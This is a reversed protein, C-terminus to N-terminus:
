AYSSVLRGSRLNQSRSTKNMISALKETGIYINIPQETQDNSGQNGSMQLAMNALIEELDTLGGVNQPMSENVAKPARVSNRYPDASVNIIGNAVIASEKTQESVYSMADTVTDTNGIIGKAIGATIQIGVENEFVKSPSEIQLDAKMTDIADSSLGNIASKITEAGDEIGSAIGNSINQGIPSWDKESFASEISNIINTLATSLGDKSKDNSAASVGGAIGKIISTGVSKWDVKTFSNKIGSVTSTISSALDSGTDQIADSTDSATQAMKDNTDKFQDSAEKTTSSINSYSSTVSDKANEASEILGNSFDKDKAKKDYAFIGNVGEVMKKTVGALSASVANMSEKIMNASAQKVKPTSQKVGEATGEGVKNGVKKGYEKANETASKTDKKKTDAETMPIIPNGSTDPAGGNEDDPVIWAQGMMESTASRVTEKAGAIGEATSTAMTEGIRTMEEAITKANDEIGKDIDNIFEQGIRVAENEFDASSEIQSALHNVAEVASMGNETIGQQIGAPIMAGIRNKFVQSPSAIELKQEAVTVMNEGLTAVNQYLQDANEMLGENIGIAIYRGMNRFSEMKNEFVAPIGQAISNISTALKQILTEDSVGDIIGNTIYKGLRSWDISEFLTTIKGIHTSTSQYVENFGEDFAQTISDMATSISKNIDVMKKDVSDSIANFNSETIQAMQDTNYSLDSYSVDSNESVASAVGSMGGEASSKISDFSDATDGINKAMDSLVPEIIGNSYDIDGTLETLAGSIGDISTAAGDTHEVIGDFANGANITHEEVGDLDSNTQSIIARIKDSSSMAGEVASKTSNSVSDMQFGFLNAFSITDEGMGSLSEGYSQKSSDWNLALNAIRGGLADFSEGSNDATEKAKDAIGKLWSGANQAATKVSTGFANVKDVLTDFAADQDSSLSSVGNVFGEVVYTGIDYMVKSPSNIGFLTKWGDVFPDTVNEQIWGVPKGLTNKIPAIFGDAVAQGITSFINEGGDLGLLSKFGNVFPDVVNTKIWEVPESFFNLIPETFGSILDSGITMFSNDEGDLGFLDIVGNVFPDVINTKAWNYVDKFFNLIPSTFGSILDSAISTFSNDEGDLGFLNKIGNLFPDSINTKVWGHVKGFFKKIPTTFGTVLKSAISFFSNEDGNIGFLNKVGTIFPNVINTKIWGAANSFFKIFPSAFGQILNSAVVFLSQQETGIGFLSKFANVFPDIINTKIWNGIGGFFNLFPNIFGQVGYNGIEAMVTSPSAIGFLAKFGEVFPDVIHTKLWNGIGGFFNLFPQVFGNVIDSGIQSLVGEGEGIGFLSKFGNIFPDSINTKIWDGINAFTDIFPKLFSDYISNGVGSITDIIVGVGSQIGSGLDRFYNIVPSIYDNYISNGLEVFYAGLENAGTRISNVREGIGDALNGFYDIVPKVYSDYIAKGSEIFSSGLETAGAKVSNVRTGIGDALNGFYDTVPKIYSDYIAKGSEIFSSGLENAGSKVSNVRERIGSALNGFYDTVPKIYSNYIATGSAIFSAGLENAGAKVTDVKEKIGDALDGFYDVVPKIYSDYISTGFEKFTDKISNAKEGLEGFKENIATKASDFFTSVNTRINKAEKVIDGPIGKFFNVIKKAGENIKGPIGVFFAVINNWMTSVSDYIGKGFDVISNWIGIFFDAIGKGVGKVSDWKDEILGAIGGALGGVATGILAGAPGGIIGGIFGGIKAGLGAGFIPGLDTEIIGNAIEGLVGFFGKFIGAWDISKLAEGVDHWPVASIASKLVGLIQIAFNSIDGAFTELDINKFASSIATAVNNKLDEWDMEDFETMFGHFVDTIVKFGDTLFRGLAEWDIEAFASRIYGAFNEGDKVWDHEKVIKDFNLVATSVGVAITQALEGLAVFVASIMQNWPVNPNTFIGTIGEKFRERLSDWDFGGSGGDGYIFGVMAQAVVGFGDTIFSGLKVWDIEPNNLVENLRQAIYAGDAKFDHGSIVTHINMLAQAGVELITQGVQGFFRVLNTIGTNWDVNNFYADVATKLSKRFADWDFGMGNGSGNMFGDLIGLIQKLGDSLTRGLTEWDLTSVLSNAADALGSGLSQWDVNQMFTDYATTIVNLGNGISEGLLSWDLEDIAGNIATYLRTAWSSATEELGEWDIGDLLGNVTEAVKEGLSGWDNSNALDQFFDSVPAEEFMSSYDALDAFYDTLVSYESTDSLTPMEYETASYVKPDAYKAYEQYDPEEYTAYQQYTPEQYDSYSALSPPQYESYDSYSPPTYYGYDLLSPTLYDSYDGFSPEMYDTYDYHTPEVLEPEEIEQKEALKNLQDFALESLKNAKELKKNYKELKKANKADAKAKAEENKKDIKERNKAVKEDYRAQKEANAADVKDRNNAIKTEYNDYKKANRADVKAKNAAIKAEYNAEKEANRADVKAHNAEIKEEYRAMKEENQADIKARNAAVKAEYQERKKENAADVKARNAEVKAEYAARKEANAKDVKEKNAAVKADYKAQAEATKQAAKEEAEATKENYKQMKQNYSDQAKQQKAAQQAAQKAQNEQAKKYQETTSNSWETFQKAARTYTSSGTLAAMLQGFGNLLKAIMAVVSDIAPALIQAFPAALSVITNRLYQFSTAISDFSVKTKKAYADTTSMSNSFMYLYGLSESMNAILSRIATSLLRMGFMRVIRNEFATFANGLSALSSVTSQIPLAFLKATTVALQNNFQILPTALKYLQSSLGAFPITALTLLGGAAIAAANFLTGSLASAWSNAHTIGDLMAQGAHQIYSTFVGLIPVKSEIVGLLSSIENTIGSINGFDQINQIASKYTDFSTAVQVVADALKQWGSRNAELIEAERQLSNMAKRATTLNKYALTANNIAQGIKIFKEAAEDSVNANVNDVFQKIANTANTINDVYNKDFNIEALRAIGMTLQNFSNASKSELGKLAESIQGLGTSLDETLKKFVSSQQVYKSFESLSAGLKSIGNALGSIQTGKSGVAQAADGVARLARAASTIKETDLKDFNKFQDALYRIQEASDKIATGTFKFRGVAENIRSLAMSMNTVESAYESGKFKNLVSVLNSISSSAKGLGSAATGINNLADAVQKLNSAGSVSNNLTKLKDNISDLSRSAETTDLTITLASKLTDSLKVYRDHVDGIANIAKVTDITLTAGKKTINDLETLKQKIENINAPVSSSDIEVKIALQDIITAM